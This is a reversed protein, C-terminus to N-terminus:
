YGNQCPKELIRRARSFFEYAWRKADSVGMEELKKWVDSRSGGDLLCELVLLDVETLSKRLRELMLRTEVDNELNSTPVDLEAIKDSGIPFKAERLNYYHSSDKPVSVPLIKWCKFHLMSVRAIFRVLAPNLVRGDKEAELVAVWAENVLEEKEFDHYIDFAQSNAVDSIIVSIEEYTM